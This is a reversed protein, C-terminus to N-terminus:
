PGFTEARHHVYWSTRAATCSYCMNTPTNPPLIPQDTPQRNTPHTPPPRKTRPHPREHRHSTSSNNVKTSCSSLLLIKNDGSHFRGARAFKSYSVVCGHASTSSYCPPHTPQYLHSPRHPPTNYPVHTTNRRRFPLPHRTPVTTTNHTSEKGQQRVSLNYPPNTNNSFSIASFEALQAQM